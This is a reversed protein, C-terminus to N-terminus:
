RAFIQMPPQDERLSVVVRPDKAAQELLRWASAARVRYRRLAFPHGNEDDNHPLRHLTVGRAEVCCRSQDAQLSGQVQIV